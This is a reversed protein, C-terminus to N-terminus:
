EADTHSFMESVVTDALNELMTKEEDSLQGPIKDIICLM